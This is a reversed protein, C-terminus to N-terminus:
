LVKIRPMEMANAGAESGDEILEGKEMTGLHDREIKTM